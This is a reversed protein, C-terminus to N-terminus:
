WMCGSWTCWVSHEFLATGNELFEVSVGYVGGCVMNQPTGGVM